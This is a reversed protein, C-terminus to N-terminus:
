PKVGHECRWAVLAQMFLPEVSYGSEWTKTVPTQSATRNHKCCRLSSLTPTLDFFYRPPSFTWHALVTPASSPLLGAVLPGKAFFLTLSFLYIFFFISKFLSTHPGLALGKNGDTWGDWKEWWKEQVWSHLQSSSEKKNVSPSPLDVGQVSKDCLCFFVFLFFMWNWTPRTCTIWTVTHPLQLVWVPFGCLCM